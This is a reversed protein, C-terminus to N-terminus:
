NSIITVSKAVRSKGLSYLYSKGKHGNRITISGLYVEYMWLVDTAAPNADVACLLEIDEGERVTEKGAKSGSPDADGSVDKNSTLTALNAM